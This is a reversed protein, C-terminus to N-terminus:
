AIAYGNATRCPSRTTVINDDRELVVAKRKTSAVAAIRGLTEVNLSLVRGELAERAPGLAQRKCPVAASSPPGGDLGTLEAFQRKVGGAACLGDRTHEATIPDAAWGGAGMEVDTGDANGCWQDMSDRAHQVAQWKAIAASVDDDM